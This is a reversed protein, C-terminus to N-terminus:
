QETLSNQQPILDITCGLQRAISTLIDFGVSHQGKEIRALHAQQIHCQGALQRQTINNQKRMQAIRSGIYLRQQEIEQNIQM